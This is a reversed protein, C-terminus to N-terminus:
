AEDPKHRGVIGLSQALGHQSRIEFHASCGSSRSPFGILSHLPSRGSGGRSADSAGATDILAPEPRVRVLGPPGIARGWRSRGDAVMRSATSVTKGFTCAIPQGVVEGLVSGADVERTRRQYRPLLESRFETTTGDDRAIRGRPIELAETGVATTIRRREHGNRYGQRGPSREYRDGGVAEALEEELVAEVAELVRRRLLGQISERLHIM